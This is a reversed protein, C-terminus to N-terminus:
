RIVNRNNLIEQIEEKSPIKLGYKAQRIYNFFKEVNGTISTDKGIHWHKGSAGTRAMMEPTTEDLIGWGNAIMYDLVEPHELFSNRLDDFTQGNIPTVDIAEARSHRSVRGQKTKAGERYGSTIRINLGSKEFMQALEQAAGRMIVGDGYEIRGPIGSPHEINLPIEQQIEVTSESNYPKYEDLLGFKGNSFTGRKGSWYRGNNLDQLTNTIQEPTYDSDNPIFLTYKGYNEWRGNTYHDKYEDPIEEEFLVVDNIDNWEEPPNNESSETNQMIQHVSKQSPLSTESDSSTSTDSSSSENNTYFTPNWDSSQINQKKDETKLYSIEGGKQLNQTNIKIPEKKPADLNFRNVYGEILIENNM